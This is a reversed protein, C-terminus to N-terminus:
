NCTPPCPAIIDFPDSILNSPQFITQGPPTKCWTGDGEVYSDSQSVLQQDATGSSSSSSSPSSGDSMVFIDFSAETLKVM